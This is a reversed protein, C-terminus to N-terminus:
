VPCGLRSVWTLVGMVLSALRSVLGSELTWARVGSGLGSQINWIRVACQAYLDPSGLRSERTHVALVPSGLRSEKLRAEM